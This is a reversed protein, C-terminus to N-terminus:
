LWSDESPQHTTLPGGPNPADCKKRQRSNLDPPLVIYAVYNVFDAYWPLSVDVMLMQKDLFYEEIEM